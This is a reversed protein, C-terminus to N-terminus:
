VKKRALYEAIDSQVQSSLTQMRDREAAAELIKTILEQRVEESEEEEEEEEERIDDLIPVVGPQTPSSPSPGLASDSPVGVPRDEFENTAESALSYEELTYQSAASEETTATTLYDEHSKEAVELFKGQIFLWMALAM